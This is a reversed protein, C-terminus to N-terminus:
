EGRRGEREASGRGEEVDESGGYPILETRLSIADHWLGANQVTERRMEDDATHGELHFTAATM